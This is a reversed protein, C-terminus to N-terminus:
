NRSTEGLTDWTCGDEGVGYHEPYCWPDHCGISQCWHVDEDAPLPGLSSTKGDLDGDAGYDGLLDDLRAPSTIPLSPLQRCSM